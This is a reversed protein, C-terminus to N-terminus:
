ERGKEFGMQACGCDSFTELQLTQKRKSKERVGTCIYVQYFTSETEFSILKIHCM